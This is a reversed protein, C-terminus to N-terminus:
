PSGRRYHLSEPSCECPVHILRGYSDLYVRHLSCWVAKGEDFCILSHWLQTSVKDAKSILGRRQHSMVGLLSM